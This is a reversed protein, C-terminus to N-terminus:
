SRARGLRGSDGERGERGWVRCKPWVHQQYGEIGHRQVSQGRRKKQSDNRGSFQGQAGLDGGKWPSWSDQNTQSQSNKWSTLSETNFCPCDWAFRSLQDGQEDGRHVETEQTCCTCARWGPNRQQIFPHPHSSYSSILIAGVTRVQTVPSHHHHMKGLPGQFPAPLPDPSPNNCLPMHRTRKHVHQTQLARM